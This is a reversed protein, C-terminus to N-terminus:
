ILPKTHTKKILTPINCSELFKYIIYILWIVILVNEMIRLLFTNFSLLIIKM